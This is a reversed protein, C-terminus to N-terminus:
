PLTADEAMFEAMAEEWCAGCIDKECHERCYIEGCFECAATCDDCLPAHCEACDYRPCETCKERDCGACDWLGRPDATFEAHCDPCTWVVPKEFPPSDWGPGSRTPHGNWTM